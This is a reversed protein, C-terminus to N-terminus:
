ARLCGSVSMFFGIVKFHQLAHRVPTGGVHSTTAAATTACTLSSSYSLYDRTNLAPQWRRRVIWRERRGLDTKSQERHYHLLECFLVVNVWENEAEVPTCQVVYVDAKRAHNADGSTVM